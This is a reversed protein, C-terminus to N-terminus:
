GGALPPVLTITDGDALDGPSEGLKVPQENRLILAQTSGHRWAYENGCGLLDIGFKDKLLLLLDRLSSTEPLQVEASRTGALDRLSSEFRVQVMM